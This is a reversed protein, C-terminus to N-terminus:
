EESRLNGSPVKASLLKHEKQRTLDAFTVVDALKHIYNLLTDAYSCHLFRILEIATYFKPLKITTNALPLVLCLAATAGM